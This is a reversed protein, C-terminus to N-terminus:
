KRVYEAFELNYKNLVDKNLVESKMKQWKNKDIEPFFTDADPFEANVHTIYLKDAKEIFLKYIQGGGIIFIEKDKDSTKELLKFLEDLSHTIEVGQPQFSDDQTLVINRRNPLPNGISEFTKQGMIVTCGKTTDRFHKMDAPLDWLLKNKKGLENNKGIAAILSIM